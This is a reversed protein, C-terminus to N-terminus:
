SMEQTVVIKCEIQSGVVRFSSPQAGRAAIAASRSRRGVERRYRKANNDIFFCASEFCYGCGHVERRSM